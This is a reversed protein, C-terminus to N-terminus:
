INWGDAYPHDRYAKAITQVFMEAIPKDYHLETVTKGVHGMMREIKEREVGLEWHTFTQWSNRLKAPPLHKVGATSIAAKFRRHLTTHSMPRGDPATASWVDDPLANSALEYLRKGLPGPIVVTRKSASTKLRDTMVGDSQLQYIIPVTAVDTGDVSSLRISENKVGLAESLRAGGFATIIFWREIASGHVAGYLAQLESLSWIGSDHSNVRRPMHYRRSVVDASCIDRMECEGLIQRLVILSYCAQVRTLNSLWEQMDLPRIKDVPTDSWMPAICTKYHCVYGRYTSKSLDETELRQTLYPLTWMKWAQSVTPKPADESHKLRLEALRDYAQRKTGHVTESARRYGKSTESWYRIRYRKNKEIETVSGWNSRMSKRPMIYVGEESDSM